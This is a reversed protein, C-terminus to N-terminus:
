KARDKAFHRRGLLLAAGEIELVAGHGAFDSVCAISGVVPHSIEGIIAAASQM